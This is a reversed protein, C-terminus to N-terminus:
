VLRKQRQTPVRPESVIETMARKPMANVLARGHRTVSNSLLYTRISVDTICLAYRPPSFDIPLGTPM